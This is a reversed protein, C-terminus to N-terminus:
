EAPRVAFQDRWDQEIATVGPPAASGGPVRISGPPLALGVGRRNAPTGPASDALARVAIVEGGREVRVTPCFDVKTLGRVLVLDALVVWGPYRNGEDTVVTVQEALEGM